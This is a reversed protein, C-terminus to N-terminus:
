CIIELTEFLSAARNKLISIKYNESRSSPSLL